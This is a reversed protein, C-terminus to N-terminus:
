EEDDHLIEEDEFTMEEFNIEENIDVVEFESSDDLEEDKSDLQKNDEPRVVMTNVQLSTILCERLNEVKVYGAEIERLAIVSDKDNNREVTIVAGSAIDKARYAALAVLEYSSEAKDRCKEVTVRAM